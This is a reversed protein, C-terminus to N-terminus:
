ASRRAGSTKARSFVSAPLRQVSSPAWDVGERTTYGALNLCDAVDKLRGAGAALAATVPARLPEAFNEADARNRAALVKGYTGLAVGRAKAAALAAKTRSAIQEREWEGVAALVHVIFKNAFPADVARFDVGDDLLRAIHSVRRSLRDLKSVVLVAKAKRCAALTAALIPRDAIRGTEVEIFEDILVGGAQAVYQIIAERQAELGLGSQGQRQTSVRLYGIYKTEM